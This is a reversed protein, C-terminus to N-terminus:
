EIGKGSTTDIQEIPQTKTRNSNDRQLGRGAPLGGAALLSAFQTLWFCCTFGLRRSPQSAAIVLAM